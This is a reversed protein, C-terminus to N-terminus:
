FFYNSLEKSKCGEIDHKACVLKVGGGGMEGSLWDDRPQISGYAEGM